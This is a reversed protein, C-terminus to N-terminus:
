RKPAQFSSSYGDNHGPHGSTILSALKIKPAGPIRNVNDIARLLKEKQANTATSRTETLAPNDAEDFLSPLVSEAAVIDSLIVGARKYMKGHDFIHELLISAAQVMTASDDTPPDFIVSEECNSARYTDPKFPNGRLFVTLRRCKGNMKRLRRACESSYIATRARIYDVDNIDEPFTRTESISEQLQRDVHDLEICAVGHLENWTKEGNVGLESRIWGSPKDYFDAITFVGKQYLRKALRRGVGWLEKISLSQLLRYIESSDTLAATPILRHKCHETVIKALTKSTSFGTTVPIGVESLCAKHIALGIEPLETEPVGNMDLFAEDVSYDLTSPAFRRFIDHVQLSIRRYLLHNGSLAKVKGDRVLDKIEFAPQGMRIGLDKAENSRAIVCGDNNSLVIVPIDLLSPNQTRECSVFFNNCDALGIM